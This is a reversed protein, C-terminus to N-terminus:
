HENGSKTHVHKKETFMRLKLIFNDCSIEILKIRKKNVFIDFSQMM